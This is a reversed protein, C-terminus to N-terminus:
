LRWVLTDQLADKWVCFNVRSISCKGPAAAAAQTIVVPM